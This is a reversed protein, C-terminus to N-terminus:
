RERRGKRHETWMWGLLVATLASVVEVLVRAPLGDPDHIGALAVQARMASAPNVSFLRFVHWLDIGAGVLVSTLCAWGFAQGEPWSASRAVAHWIAYALLGILFAIAGGELAGLLGSHLALNV